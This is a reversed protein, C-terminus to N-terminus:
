FFTYNMRGTCLMNGCENCTGSVQGKAGIKSVGAFNAQMSSTSFEPVHSPFLHQNYNNFMRSWGKMGHVVWEPSALLNERWRACILVRLMLARCFILVWRHIPARTRQHNKKTIPTQIAFMTGLFVIKKSLLLGDCLDNFLYSKFICM